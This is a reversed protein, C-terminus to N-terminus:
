GTLAWGPCNAEVWPTFRRRRCAPTDSIERNTSYIVVLRQGAAFLHRLYTELVADEILHCVVDLSLALDATCLGAKDPFCPGTTLFFSEQGSRERVAASM